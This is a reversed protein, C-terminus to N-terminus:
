EWGLISVADADSVAINGRLAAKAAPSLDFTIEARAAQHDRDRERERDQQDQRMRDIEERESRSASVPNLAANQIDEFVNAQDATRGTNENLFEHLNGMIKDAQTVLFEGSRAAAEYERTTLAAGTEAGEVVIRRGMKATASLQEYMLRNSILTLANGASLQANTKQAETLTEDRGEVEDKLQQNLSDVLDANGSTQANQLQDLLNLTRLSTQEDLGYMQQLLQSQVYFQQAAQPGGEEAEFSSVIEGGTFSAITDRMGGALIEGIRAQDGTEEAELIRNQIGIGAGLIGGGGGMDIGGRQMTIYATAYDTSLGALSKSLSESLDLAQEFGMGMDSLTASFSELMPRGFDAAFGLKEFGRVGSNLSRAIDNVNLNTEKAIDSFMQIQLSAEGFTKGQRAMANASLNAYETMSMGVSSAHLAAFELNQMTGIATTTVGSLRELSIGARNFSNKMEDLDEPTIFFEMGGHGTMLLLEEGFRRAAEYSGGFQKEVSFLEQEMERIPTIPGEFFNIMGMGFDMVENTYTNIKHVLEGILSFSSKISAGLKESFIGALSGMFGGLGKFLETSAKSFGEVGAQHLRFADRSNFAARSLGDLSAGLTATTTTTKKQSDGLDDTATALEEQAEIVDASMGGQAELAANLKTLADTLAKVEASTPADM